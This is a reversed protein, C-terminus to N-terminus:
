TQHVEHSHADIRFIKKVHDIYKPHFYIFIFVNIIGYMSLLSLAVAEVVIIISFSFNFVHCILIVVVFIFNLQYVVYSLIIYKSASIVLKDESQNRQIMLQLEKWVKMLLFSIIFSLITNQIGFSAYVVNYEQTKQAIQITLPTWCFELEPIMIHAASSLVGFFYIIGSLSKINNIFFHTSYKYPHCVGIYKEVSSVLFVLVRLFAGYGVGAIVMKSLWYGVLRSATLISQRIWCNLFIIKSISYIVDSISINMLVWFYKTNKLEEMQYLMLLHLVNSLISVCNIGDLIQSFPYYCQSTNNYCPGIEASLSSYNNMNRFTISLM